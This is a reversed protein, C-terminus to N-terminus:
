AYELDDAYFEAHEDEIVAWAKACEERTDFKRADVFGQSDISLISMERPFVAYWGFFDTDGLEEAQWCELSLGHLYEAWNSSFKRSM